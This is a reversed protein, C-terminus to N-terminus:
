IREYVRLTQTTVVSQFYLLLVSLHRKPVTFLNIKSFRKDVHFSNLATVYNKIV